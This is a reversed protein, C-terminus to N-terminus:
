WAIKGESNSYTMTEGDSGQGVLEVVRVAGLKPDTQENLEVGNIKTARLGPCVCNVKWAPFKKAYHVALYNEAAKSSGYWFNSMVDERKTLKDISGAGSGVFIVKPLTARELM